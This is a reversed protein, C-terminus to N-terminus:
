WITCILEGGTKNQIAQFTSMVGSSTSIITLHNRKRYHKLEDVAVYSRQGPKSIRDLGNIVPRKGDMALSITVTHKKDQETIEYSSVFGHEKLLRVVDLKLKSAPFSISTKKRQAGNRIRTLMDAIPDTHAM